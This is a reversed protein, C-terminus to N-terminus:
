PQASRNHRAVAAADLAITDANPDAAAEAALQQALAAMELLKQRYLELEAEEAAKADANVEAQRKIEDALERQLEAERQQYKVTWEFEARHYGRQDLWLAAGGIAALLALGGGAILGIRVPFPILALLARM